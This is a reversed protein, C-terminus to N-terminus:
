AHHECQGGPLKFLKGNATATLDGSATTERARDRPFSVNDRDTGTIRAISTPM